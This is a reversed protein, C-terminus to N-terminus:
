FKKSNHIFDRKLNQKKIEIRNEFSTIISVLGIVLISAGTILFTMSDASRCSQLFFLNIGTRINLVFLVAIILIFFLILLLSQFNQTDNESLVSNMSSDGFSYLYEFTRRWSVLRQQKQKHIFLSRSIM